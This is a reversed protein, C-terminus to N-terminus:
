SWFLLLVFAAITIAAMALLYPLMKERNGFVIPVPGVLLFGGYASSTGKRGPAGQPSPRPPGEEPSAGEGTVLGGLTLFIGVFLLLSGAALLVSSGYVVPIVLLLALHAGGTLFAEAVLALGAALVALGLLLVTFRRM